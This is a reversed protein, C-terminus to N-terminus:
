INQGEFLISIHINIDQMITVARVYDREM